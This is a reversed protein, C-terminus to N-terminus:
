QVSGKGFALSVVSRGCIDGLANGLIEASRNVQEDDTHVYINGTTGVDSHGLQEQAMKFSEAEKHLISGV